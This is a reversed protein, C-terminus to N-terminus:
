GVPFYQGDCTADLHNMCGPMACALDREKPPRSSHQKSTIEARVYRAKTIWETKFAHLLTTGALAFEGAKGEIRCPEATTFRYDTIRRRMKARM